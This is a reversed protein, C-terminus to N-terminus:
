HLAMPKASSTLQTATSYWALDFDTLISQEPEGDKITLLFLIKPSSIVTFYVGNTLMTFLKRSGPNLHDTIQEISMTTSPDIDRWNSGDIYEMYFGIAV